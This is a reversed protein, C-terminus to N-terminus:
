LNYRDIMGAVDFIYEKVNDQFQLQCKYTGVEAAYIIPYCEKEKIENNQYWQYTTISHYGNKALCALLAVQEGACSYGGMWVDFVSGLIRM